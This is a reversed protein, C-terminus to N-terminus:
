KPKLLKITTLKEKEVVKEKNAKEEAMKAVDNYLSAILDREAKIDRAMIPSVDINSGDIEITETRVRRIRETIDPTKAEGVLGSLVKEREKIKARKEELIINEKIATNVKSIAQSVGSQNESESVLNPLYDKYNDNLEKIIANVNEKDLYSVKNRQELEKLATTETAFRESISKELENSVQTAEDTYDIFLALGAVVGAIAAALIAYPNAMATVNFAKQAANALGISDKLRNMLRIAKIIDQGKQIAATAMVAAKYAGYATVITGLVNALQEWNEVLFKAGSIGTSLVGDNAQGIDNFMKDIADGLNSYQGALSKAQEATLQYFRGGESTLNFMVQQVEKFGVKGTEVLKAIESDSVDMVKALEAIIPVGREAFQYMEQSMLKGKTMVQGYALSLGNIDSGTGAAIDGISSLTTLVTEASEGFAILRKAGGAVELLSFPTTAAMQVIDAMLRDAKEKSKLAAEFAIQLKEFEGRVEITKRLFAAMAATGVVGALAVKMKSATSETQTATTRLKKNLRDIEAQMKKSNSAFGKGMKNVQANFQKQMTASKANSEKEFKAYQTAMKALDKSFGNDISSSFDLGSM